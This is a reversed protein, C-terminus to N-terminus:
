SAPKDVKTRGSAAPGKRKFLRRDIQGELSRAAKLGPSHEVSYSVHTSKGSILDATLKKFDSLLSM